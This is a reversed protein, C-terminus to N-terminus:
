FYHFTFTVDEEDGFMDVLGPPWPGYPIGREIAERCMYIGIARSTTGELIEIDRVDGDRSLMFRIKVLTNREESSSRQVLDDWNYSVTEILREMYEGFKSAKADAALQGISSVGLRSDRVPGAPLRPLQPRARPAVEGLVASNPDVVPPSVSAMVNPSEKASPEESGEEAQGEILEDINTPAEDTPESATEAIGEEELQSDDVEGAIPTELRQPEESATVAVLLPQNPAPEQPQAEEQEAEETATPPPALVPDELSGSLFQDTEINDDSETAPRNEPDIEEPREENAAQQSRAGFRNTDDPENEPVDPNTQTYVQDEEEVPDDAALEISFEQYPDEKKERAVKLIGQQLFLLILVHALVTGFLGILWQEVAYGRSRSAVRKRAAESADRKQTPQSSSVPM